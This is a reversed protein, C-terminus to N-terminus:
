AAKGAAAAAGGTATMASGIVAAAEGASVEARRVKPMTRTPVEPVRGAKQAAGWAAAVTEVEAGVEAEATAAEGGAGRAGEGAGVGAKAGAAGVGTSVEGSLPWSSQGTQMSGMPVCTTTNLHAWEAQAVHM